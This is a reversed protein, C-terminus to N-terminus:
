MGMIVVGRDPVSHGREDHDMGPDGDAPWRPDPLPLDLRPRDGRRRDEERRIIEKIIWPELM